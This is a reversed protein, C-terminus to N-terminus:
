RKHAVILFCGYEGLDDTDADLIRNSVLWAALPAMPALAAPLRRRLGLSRQIAIPPCAGQRLRFLAGGTWHSWSEWRRLQRRSLYGSISVDGLGAADLEARWRDSSWYNVHALRRDVDAVYAERSQSAMRGPGRLLERFKPSPVTAAFVAGPKLCRAIERLCEPLVSLHELVSNAFVADFARDPEPIQDASAVHVQEYIGTAKATRAECPDRDIGVLKWNARILDRLVRTLAGDGCGVDLVAGAKPLSPALHYLEVARWLNTAPQFPAALMLEELVRRRPRALSSNAVPDLGAGLQGAAICSSSQLQRRLSSMAGEPSNM